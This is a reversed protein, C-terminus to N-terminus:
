VSGLSAKDPISRVMTKINYGLESQCAAEAAETWLLPPQEKTAFDHALQVFCLILDACTVPWTM